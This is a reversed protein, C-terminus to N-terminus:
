SHTASPADEKRGAFDYDQSGELGARVGGLKELLVRRYVLSSIILQGITANRTVL